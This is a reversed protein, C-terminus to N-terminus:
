TLNTPHNRGKIRSNTLPPPPCLTPQLGGVKLKQSPHCQIAKWFLFWSFYPFISDDGFFDKLSMKFKDHWIFSFNNKQSVNSCSHFLSFHAWNSIVKLMALSIDCLVAIPWLPWNPTPWSHSILSTQAIQVVERFLDLVKRNGRVKKTKAWRFKSTYM